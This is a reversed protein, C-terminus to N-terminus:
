SIVCQERANAHNPDPPLFPVEVGGYGGFILVNNQLDILCNFRRM